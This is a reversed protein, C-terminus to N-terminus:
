CELWLFCLSMKFYWIIFNVPSETGLGQSPFALLFFLEHATCSPLSPFWYFSLGINRLGWTWTDTLMRGVKEAMEQLDQTRPAANVDRFWQGVWAELGKHRQMWTPCNEPAILIGLLSCLSLNSVEHCNPNLTIVWSAEGAVKYDWCMGSDGGPGIRM